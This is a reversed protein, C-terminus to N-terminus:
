LHFLVTFEGKPTNKQFYEINKSISERRIEEYLKTLERSIVIEIDGFNDRINELTKVLRYPSEYLIVTPCIENEKTSKVMDWIKQRKNDKLPLFGLFLFKDTPLGSAVLATLLASAGPIAVVKIGLNQCERVLKFGPDSITPTGANSILAVDKGSNIIDIIEPIRKAENEEFYSITEKYPVELRQLFLGTKRTDECAIVDVESLIKKARISIDEINGIPTAVLYLTKM